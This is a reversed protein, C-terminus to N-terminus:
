TRQDTGRALRRARSGNLRDAIDGMAVTELCGAERLRDAEAFIQQLGALLDATHCGLNSPHTWLHYVSRHRAAKRLGKIAKNVRSAISVRRGVGLFPSYFQSSPIMWLTDHFPRPKLVRPAMASRADLLRLVARPIKGPLSEFWKNEPGRFASFGFEALLDLHAMKARPFIFTRPRPLNLREFLQLFRILELRLEQRGEAGPRVYIHTLTHCGLEQPVRCGALAELVDEAYWHPQSRCNGAPVDVFRGERLWRHKSSDDATPLWLAGVAVWTAPIEYQELLPLLGRIADRTGDLFPPVEVARPRGRTGWAFELDLSFTFVGRPLVTRVRESANLPCNDLLRQYTRHTTKLVIREDFRDAVLKRAASGMSRRRQPDRALETIAAALCEVDRPPVLLGTEGPMVVDRCGPVDSAIVPKGAAGAELLVRPMGERYSPLVVIDASALRDEISDVHGCFQLGHNKKWSALTASDITSPNGPDPEGCVVFQAPLRQRACHVAAGVFERIGKEAILRGVFLVNLPAADDSRTRESLAACFRDLDVGSGPTFVANESLRSGAPALAALDDRNQFLPVTGGATLVLRYWTRILPRVARAWLSDSVFVHGLGTVSNVLRRVGASKGALTGYLIPKITFHHAIVPRERRYISYLSRVANLERLPNKGARLLPWEVWRVGIAELKPVYSDSPSIALVEFGEELLSRILNRRFNFLYWATNAVLAVCGSSVNVTDPSSVRAESYQTVASM